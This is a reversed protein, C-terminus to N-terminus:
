SLQNYRSQTCHLSSRQDRHSIVKSRFFNRRIDGDCIYKLYFFTILYIKSTNDHYLCFVNNRPVKQSYIWAAIASSVDATASQATRAHFPTLVAVTIVSLLLDHTVTALYRHLMCASHQYMFVSFFHKNFKTLRNEDPRLWM